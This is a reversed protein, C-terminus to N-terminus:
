VLRSDKQNRRRMPWHPFGIRMALSVGAGPLQGNAIHVAPGGLVYMGLGSQGIAASGQNAGAAMLAISAADTGMIEYGYWRSTAPAEALPQAQAASASFAFALTFLVSRAVTTM